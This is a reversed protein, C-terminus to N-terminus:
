QLRARAVAEHWTRLRLQRDAYSEAPEYTQGPRALGELDTRSWIGADLGALHATGLASLDRALARQVRRGSTDAQLQMLMDNDTPGGDALLLDVAPGTAEVAAVVDEIQFAVAEFAARALQSRSTEFRLNSILGVAASDWWPAALGGFAPVLSVGGSTTEAAALRALEDASIDLLKALWAITAGSSRINGELAYVTSDTEWAITSCLGTAAVPRETVSMVSSGTGYTAKVRGPLWGAHAFLAAHSDGLVSCIPTGDLSPELHQVAPWPGTSRVVQPLVEEPIDFLDLLEPSWCRREIDLLQTRAANGVETVHPGGFRSLLWSDITGLCLEGRRSRARDHDYTDLLWQAKPASFMPDLPLGSVARVLPGHGATLLDHCSGVTRQDQWGLLPGLPEGSRREWLVISERQNTIGVARVAGPTPARSLCARVAEQVSAWLDTASQEVWGPRPFEQALPAAGHAVIRGGDDVLVAKTASTGQDIALVCGDAASM